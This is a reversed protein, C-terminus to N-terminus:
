SLLSPYARISVDVGGNVDEQAMYDTVGKSILPEVM